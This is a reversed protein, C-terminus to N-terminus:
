LCWCYWYLIRIAFQSFSNLWSLLFSYNLKSRRPWASRNLPLVSWLNDSNDITVPLCFPKWRRPPCCHLTASTIVVLFPPIITVCYFTIRTSLTLALRQSIIREQVWDISSCRADCARRTNWQGLRFYGSMGSPTYESMGSTRKTNWSNCSRHEIAVYSLLQVYNNVVRTSLDIICMCM